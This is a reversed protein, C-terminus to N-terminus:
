TMSVRCIVYKGFRSPGGCMYRMYYVICFILNCGSKVQDSMLCRDDRGFM